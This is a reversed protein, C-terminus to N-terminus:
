GAIARGVLGGLASRAVDDDAPLVGAYRELLVPVTNGLIKAVAAPNMGARLMTTAATDRLCHWTIDDSLGAARVLGGFRHTARQRRWLGREPDHRDYFLVGDAGTGYVEIHRALVDVLQEDLPVVRPKRNKLPSLEVAGTQPTRAQDDVRLRRHLFELKDVRVALSESIRVGTGLGLLVWAREWPDCVALLAPIEDDDLPRPDSADAKAVNLGSAPSRAILGNSEAGRFLSVLLSRLRKQTSPALGSGTIVRQLDLQRVQGVTMNGISPEVHAAWTSLHTERTGPAWQTQAESWDAWWAAVTVRGASPSVYTGHDLSHAIETAYREADAKRAFSKSRMPAGRHRSERWRVQWSDGRKTISAM